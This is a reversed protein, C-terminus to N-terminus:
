GEVLEAASKEVSEIDLQRVGLLHGQTNSGEFAGTESNKNEGMKMFYDEYMRPGVGTFPIVLMKKDAAEDTEKIADDHLETALSKVYPEIFRVEVIGAAVIHRTCNHCPYTTTYLTGGEVSSGIRGASIIANMEAHVSRSFEILDGIHPIKRERDFSTSITEMIAAHAVSKTEDEEIHNGLISLVDNTLVDSLWVGLEQKIKNKRHTNHCGKFEDSGGQWAFCRGDKDTTDGAYVGGGFKPVENAGTALLNGSQDLVSAGVQRSLCSSQLSAAHAHYMGVEEVRPGVPESGLVLDCFRKLDKVFGPTQTGRVPKNNDLFFDAQHFAKRVQQGRTNTQDSEDRNLFGEVEEAAVGAYKGGMGSIRSLRETRDVHIAILRFSKDYVRRLLDIEKPHKISDLIYAKRGAESAPAKRKERIDQVALSAIAYDGHTNRLTDGWDQLRYARQLNHDGPEEDAPRPPQDEGIKTEILKSLKILNVDYNYAELMSSLQDSVNRFGAGAYGVLGIVLENSRPNIDEASKPSEEDEGEVLSLTVQKDEVM